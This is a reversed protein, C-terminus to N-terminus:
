PTPLTQVLRLIEQVLPSTYDEGSATVISGDVTVGEGGYHAGSDIISDRLSPDGTISKGKIFDPLAHVIILPATGMAGIIINLESTKQIIKHIIADDYYLQAGPGGVFILADYDTLSFGIDETIHIDVKIEETSTGNGIDTRAATRTKYDQTALNQQLLLLEGSDYTHPPIIILITGSTEHVQNNEQNDICGMLLTMLLIFGMITKLPPM